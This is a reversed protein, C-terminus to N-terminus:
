GGRPEMKLSKEDAAGRRPASRALIQWYRTAGKGGAHGFVAGLTLGPRDKGTGAIGKKLMLNECRM